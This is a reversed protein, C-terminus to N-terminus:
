QRKRRAKGGSKAEQGQKASGFVRRYIQGMHRIYSRPEFCAKIDAPLLKRSIFPDKVVLGQFDGRGQWAEMANRQVAEYAVERGAGRDVLALLLRQSYILGGTANLNTMMRSPYVTLSELMNTLRVLMYDIVITSDPLVIREVSTTISKREHWLAVDEM